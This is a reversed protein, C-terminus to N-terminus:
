SQCTFEGNPDFARLHINACTADRCKGAGPIEFQCIGRKPDLKLLTGEKLPRLLASLQQSIPTDLSLFPLPSTLTSSLFNDVTSISDLQSPSRFSAFPSLPSNYPLFRRSMVQATHEQLSPDVLELSHQAYVLPLHLGTSSCLLRGRVENEESQMDLQSDQAQDAPRSTEPDVQLVFFALLVLALIESLILVM